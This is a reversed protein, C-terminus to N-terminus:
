WIVDTLAMFILLDSDISDKKDFWMMAVSIINRRICKSKELALPESIIQYRIGRESVDAIDYCYLGPGDAIPDPDFVCFGLYVRENEYSYLISREDSDNFEFSGDSFECSVIDGPHLDTVDIDVIHVPFPQGASYESDKYSDICHAFLAPAGNIRVSFTGMPTDIHDCPRYEKKPFSVGMNIPRMESMLTSIDLAPRIIPTSIDGTMNQRTESITLRGDQIQELLDSAEEDDTLDCITELYFRAKDWNGADIQERAHQWSLQLIVPDPSIPFGYEEAAKRVRERTAQGIAHGARHSIYVLNHNANESDPEWALSMLYCVEAPEFEDIQSYYYGYHRLVDAFNESTYAYRYSLRTIKFYNDLDGVEAFTYAYEMYSDFAVPNWKLARALAERAELPREMGDLAYGLMHYYDGIPLDTPRSDRDLQYYYAYLDSELPDRFSHYEYGGSTEPHYQSWGILGRLLEAEEEYREQKNLERAHRFAADMDCQEPDPTRIPEGSLAALRRFAVLFWVRNDIALLMGGEQHTCGHWKSHIAAGLANPDDITDVIEQLAAAHDLADDSYAECFPHGYDMEFGLCHCEEGLSEMVDAERTNPDAFLNYFKVAFTHIQDRDAM